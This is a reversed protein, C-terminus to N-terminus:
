PKGPSLRFSELAAKLDARVAGMEEKGAFTLVQYVEHGRVFAGILYEVEVGEITATTSVMLGEAGVVPLPERRTVDYRTAVRRGNAISIDALQNASMRAPSREGIVMIRAGSVLDVLVAEAARNNDNKSEVRWKDNPVGLYWGLGPTHGELTTLPEASVVHTTAPPPLQFSQIARLFEGRLAAYDTSKCFAMIQFARTEDTILGDLYEIDLGNVHGRAHMLRGFGRATPLEEVELVAYDPSKARANGIVTRVFPAMSVVDHVTDEAIILIHADRDTNWLWRDAVPNEKAMLAKSRLRWDRSPARLTYPLKVGTVLDARPTDAFTKDLIQDLHTVLVLLVAGQIALALGGLVYALVARVKSARGLVLAMAGLSGVLTVWTVARGGVTFGLCLAALVLQGAFLSLVLRQALHLRARPKTPGATATPPVTASELGCIVCRPGTVEYGCRQCARGTPKPDSM